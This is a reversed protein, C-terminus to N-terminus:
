QLTGNSNFVYKTGNIYRKGTVMIGNVNFYYWNGNSKVWENKKMIGTSEDLYSWGDSSYAWGTMMVGNSDSCYWNGDNRFWGTQMSASPDKFCYWSGNIYNWNTAAAGNDKLYYWSDNDWKWSNSVMSGDSNFLYWNDDVKMWGTTMKGDAKMYYWIGNKNLWESKIVSGQPGLYYWSDSDQVWQNFLQYGKNKDFYCRKGDVVQWGTEMAGDIRNFYYTKGAINQVGKLSIGDEDYYYTYGDRHGWGEDNDFRDFVKDWADNVDDNKDKLDDKLDEIADALDGIVGTIDDIADTVVGGINNGIDPVMIFTGPTVVSTIIDKISSSLNMSGIVSDLMGVEFKDVPLSYKYVKTGTASTKPELSVNLISTGIGKSKLNVSTTSIKLNTVSSPFAIINLAKDTAVSGGQSDKFMNYVPNNIIYLKKGSTDLINIHMGDCVVKMNSSTIDMSKKYTDGGNEPSLSLVPILDSSSDYSANRVPANYIDAPSLALGLIGGVAFGETAVSAPSSATLGNSSNLAKYKYVTISKAEEQVVAILQEETLSEMQKLKTLVGKASNKLATGTQVMSSNSTSTGSAILQEGKQQVQTVGGVIQSMNATLIKGINAAAEANLTYSITGCSKFESVVATSYGAKTPLMAKLVTELAAQESSSALAILNSESDVKIEDNQTTAANAINNFAVGPIASSIIISVAVLSIIKNLRRIM